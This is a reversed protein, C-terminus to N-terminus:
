YTFPWPWYPKNPTISCSFDPNGGHIEWKFTWIYSFIPLLLTWDVYLGLPPEMSFGISLLLLLEKLKYQSVKEGREEIHFLECTCLMCPTWCRIEQFDCSKFTPSTPWLLWPFNVKSTTIQFMLFKYPLCIKSAHLCIGMLTITRFICSKFTEWSAFDQVLFQNTPCPAVVTYDQLM